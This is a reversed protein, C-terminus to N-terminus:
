NKKYSSVCTPFALAYSLQLHGSHEKVALHDATNCQDITGHLQRVAGCRIGGLGAVSTYPMSHVPKGFRQLHSWSTQYSTLFPHAGIFIYSCYM